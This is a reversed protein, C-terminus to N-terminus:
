APRHLGADCLPDDVLPAPLAKRDLKGNSNLPLFRVTVFNSPVM